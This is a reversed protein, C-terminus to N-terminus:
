GYYGIDLNAYLHMDLHLSQYRGLYWVVGCQRYRTDSSCRGLWLSRSIDLDTYLSMDTSDDLDTAM